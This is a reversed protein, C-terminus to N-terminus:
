RKRSKKKRKNFLTRKLLLCGIILCVVVSIISAIIRQWSIPDLLVLITQTFAITVALLSLWSLNQNLKNDSQREWRDNCINAVERLNSMQKDLEAKDVEIYLQEKLLNYIEVGQEQVTVESLLLQSQAKVYKSQLMEIKQIQEPEIENDKDTLGKAVIAAESSISLIIARQVLVLMALQTYQTIFPITVVPSPDMGTICVLSHHTMAQITGYDIWRDYISTKLLKKKMQRSVCSVDNEIYIM